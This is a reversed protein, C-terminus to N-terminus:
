PRCRCRMVVRADADLGRTAEELVVAALEPRLENAPIEEFGLRMYFPMNWAVARFTTLTIEPCGRDTAWKCVARVLAAGVGYRGHSPLVDIEELHPLDDALMEVLAFGVPVGAVVGVWLRGDAQAARFTAADTEENLVSEPAHGRLLRAAELEIAALAHLDAPLSRGAVRSLLPSNGRPSRSFSTVM